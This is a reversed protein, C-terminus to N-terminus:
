DDPQRERAARTAEVEAMTEDARRQSEAKGHECVDRRQNREGYTVPPVSDIGCMPCISTPQIHSGPIREGIM